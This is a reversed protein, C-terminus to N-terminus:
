SASSRLCSMKRMRLCIASFRYSVGSFNSKARSRISSSRPGFPRYNEVKSLEWRAQATMKVTDWGSGRDMRSNETREIGRVFKTQTASAIALAFAWGDGVFLNASDQHWLCVRKLGDLFEVPTRHWPCVQKDTRTEGLRDFVRRALYVEDVLRSTERGSNGWRGKPWAFRQDPGGSM